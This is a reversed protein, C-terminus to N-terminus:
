YRFNFRRDPAVDGELFLSEVSKLSVYDVWKFDFGQGPARPILKSPVSLELRKGNYGIAVMESVEWKGDTWKACTSDTASVAKWNVALDYGEWGTEKKQDTDILLIMWRDDTHPTLDDATSVMFFVHEKGEVVRVSVIDNRGFTNRYITNPDTGRFSRHMTDGPPDQYNAPIGKWDNFKGDIQIESQDPRKPPPSIGKFRRIHGVMQYYYNDTYGGRMPALDRNFEATYADVFRHSETPWPRGAFPAGAKGLPGKGKFRGAIWENWQTVMVVKPDVEHARSWQEEFFLGLHTHETTYDPRVTPQKGNHFSKGMSN